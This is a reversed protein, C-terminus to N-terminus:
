TSLKIISFRFLWKMFGAKIMGRVKEHANSLKRSTADHKNKGRKDFKVTVFSNVSSRKLVHENPTNLVVIVTM